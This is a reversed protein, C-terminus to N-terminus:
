MSTCVAVQSGAPTPRQHTDKTGFDALSFLALPDSTMASRSQFGPAATPMPDQQALLRDVRGSEISSVIDVDVCSTYYEDKGRPYNPDVRPATPWQWVWYLTYPLGTRAAKPLTVDTECLLEHESGSQGVTPNPTQAKRENALAAGNGLQYCRQDDFDQAALLLGRCDGGLGDRTWQLVDILKEESRPDQTGFVFVTGGKEPKGLLNNGGGPLTAHGNEAYRMAITNGPLAQLRPFAPSQAATRQSPHCLYNEPHVFISSQAPPPLLWQNATQDFGAEGKDKFSRPYGFGYFTGNQAINSLQEIWTHAYALRACLLLLLARVKGNIM